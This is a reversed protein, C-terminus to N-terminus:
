SEFDKWEKVFFDHKGYGECQSWHIEANRREGHYDLTCIAKVHQWDEENGGIRDAFKYADRYTVGSGKGAFVKKDRIFSGEALHFVEGTKLDLVDLNQSKAGVSRAVFEDMLNTTEISAIQRKTNEQKRMSETLAIRDSKGSETSRSGSIRKYSGGKQGPDYEIVCHCNRHRRWVDNGKGMVDEYNYVGALNDCWECCHAEATRIVKPHLGASSQVAANDKIAQDVVNEAFNEVQDYFQPGIEGREKVAAVLGFARNGDFKPVQPRIGVGANLNLNKQAETCAASVMAHDLGLTGPILDELDWEALDEPQYKKLVHGTLVGVRLAYAHAVDYGAGNETLKKWLTIVRLDSNVASAIEHKVDNFTLPM